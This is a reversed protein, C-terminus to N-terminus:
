EDAAEKWQSYQKKCEDIIKDLGSDSLKKKLAEVDGEFDDTLLLLKIDKQLDETVGIIENEVSRGDFVFGLNETDAENFVNTYIESSNEYDNEASYCLLKNSFRMEGFPNGWVPDLIAYNGTRTYDEGEIGYSMLNNIYPDTYILSLAEFAKEKNQSFACIGTAANATSISTSGNFVPVAEIKTGYYDIEVPTKDKYAFAGAPKEDIIIFAAEKHEESNPRSLLEMSNLTNLLKLNDLYTKNELVSKIEGNEVCVGDIIEPVGFSSTEFNLASVIDVDENAKVSELIDTQELIPKNIDFGYKEALPKNVYYGFDNSLQSFFGNFGYVSGNIELSRWFNEPMLNYLQQGKDSELYTDLPELIDAYVSANYAPLGERSVFRASSYIIDIPEHNANKNKVYNIYAYKEDSKMTNAAELCLVFDYGQKDLYENLERTRIHTRSDFMNGEVSWVLVTKDPYLAKVEDYGPFNTMYMEELDDQTLEEDGSFSLDDNTDSVIPEGATDSIIPEETHSTETVNQKTNNDPSCASLLFITTLLLAVKKYM